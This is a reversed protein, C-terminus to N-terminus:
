ARLPEPVRASSLRNACIVTGRRSTAIQRARYVNNRDERLGCMLFEYDVELRKWARSLRQRGRHDRSSVWGREWLRGRRVRGILARAWAHGYMAVDIADFLLFRMSATFGFREVAVKTSAHLRIPQALRGGPLV